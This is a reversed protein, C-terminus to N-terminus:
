HVEPVAVARRRRPAEPKTAADTQSFRQEFRSPGPLAAETDRMWEDSPADSFQESRESETSIVEPARKPKELPYERDLRERTLINYQDFAQALRTLATAIRELNVTDDLSM